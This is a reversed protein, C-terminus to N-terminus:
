KVGAVPVNGNGYMRKGWLFQNPNLTQDLKLWKVHGDTFAYNAGGQHRDPQTYQIHHTASTAALATIAEGATLPSVSTGAFTEGDFVAGAVTVGNAPRHSKFAVGGANSTGNWRGPDDTADTFLIVEAPTDIMASPVVNGPDSARRKRPLVAENGAYSLRPAQSDLDADTQPTQGPPRGHGQNDTATSFNTPAAGKSPDSPCVYLGFSKAYPGTAGTWHVYGNASTAGNKYYYHQPFTDDYDSVYQLVALAAQKSNSGCSTQRGKERAKAFVPFLIAALIAIIAIVVLLEILTFAAPAHRNGQRKM